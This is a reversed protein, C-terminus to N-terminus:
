CRTRIRRSSVAFPRRELDPCLCEARCSRRRIGQPCVLAPPSRATSTHAARAEAAGPGNEDSPILRAVIAELTDSEAATLTELAERPPAAATRAKRPLHHGRNSRVGRRSRRKGGGGDRFAEAARPAFSERPEQKGTMRKM